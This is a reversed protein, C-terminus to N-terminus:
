VNYLSSYMKARTTGDEDDEAKLNDRLPPPLSTGRAHLADCLQHGSNIYQTVYASFNITKYDPGNLSSSIFPRIENFM